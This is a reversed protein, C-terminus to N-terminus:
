IDDEQGRGERISENSYQILIEMIKQVRANRQLAIGFQTIPGNEREFRDIFNSFNAKVALQQQSIVGDQFKNRAEEYKDYPLPELEKLLTARAEKGPNDKYKQAVIRKYRLDVEGQPMGNDKAENFSEQLDKESDLFFETGFHASVSVPVDEGYQLRAITKGLRKYALNFQKNLETLVTKESEYIGKVQLENIAKDNYIGSGKGVVSYVIEQRIARLNEDTYEMSKTEPSIMRTVGAGSEKNGGKVDVIIETGPGSIESKTCSPCQGGKPYNRQIYSGGKQLEKVPYDDQLIGDKCQTVGCKQKPREVMPWAGYSDAYRKYWTQIQWHQMRQLSNHIPAQRLTLEKPKENKSSIRWNWFFFAPTKGNTHPAKLVRRVDGNKNKEYLRYFEDDYVGYITVKDGKKDKRYSHIFILYELDGEGDSTPLFDIIRDLSLRLIIPTFFPSPDSENPEESQPLDVVIISHPQNKVVKKGEAEIWRELGLEVAATELERSSEPTPGEISFYRDNAQFAKSLENNISETLEVSEIPGTAYKLIRSRKKESLESILVSEITKFAEENRPNLDGETYLRLNSEIRRAEEIAEKNQPSQLLKKAQNESLRM